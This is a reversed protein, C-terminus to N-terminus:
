PKMKVREKKHKFQKEIPRNKMQRLNLNHNNIFNNTLQSITIHEEM